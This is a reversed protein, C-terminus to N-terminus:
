ADLWAEVAERNSLDPVAAPGWPWPQADYGEAIKAGIVQKGAAVAQQQTGFTEQRTQGGKTDPRRGYRKTLYFNGGPAPDVRVEYFKDSEGSVNNGNMGVYEAYEVWLPPHGWQSEAM